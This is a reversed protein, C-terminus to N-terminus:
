HTGNRSAVSPLYGTYGKKKKLSSVVLKDKNKNLRIEGANLQRQLGSETYGTYQSAEAFTMFYPLSDTSLPLLSITANGKEKEQSKVAEWYQLVGDVSYVDIYQAYMPYRARLTQVFEDLSQEQSLKELEKAEEPHKTLEQYMRKEIMTLKPLSNPLSQTRIEGGIQVSHEPSQVPIQEANEPSEESTQKSKGWPLADSVMQINGSIWASRQKNKIKNLEGKVESEQRLIELKQQLEEVTEPESNFLDAVLSYAINLLAFSSALIPNLWWYGTTKNLGNGQFQVAYEWNVFLSFLTLGIIFLWVSTLAGRSMNKRFFMMGISLILITADISIALAYAGTQDTGAPEFNEFFYAIHRLSAYLFAAYAFLFVIRIVIKFFVAM